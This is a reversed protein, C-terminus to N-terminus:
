LQKLTKLHAIARPCANMPISRRAAEESLRELVPASVPSVIYGTEQDGIMVSELREGLRWRIAVLLCLASDLRDQDAKKPSAISTLEDLWGMLKELRFREAERRAAAVVANWDEKRFTKRRAPNYRPAGLRAFFRVDLSALALAPFVEMLHVGNTAIRASEPDQTAALKRMFRRIPADRGFMPLMNRNAPQVGGGMWSILSAAVRDVPRMGTDNVVITPQDLAVIMPLDSRRRAEIHALADEFGALEPCGFEQFAVGDFLASCIAGKTKPNDVWASDFGVFLAGLSRDSLSLEAPLVM